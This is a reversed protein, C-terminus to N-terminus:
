VVSRMRLVEGEKILQILEFCGAFKILACEFGGHVIIVFIGEDKWPMPFKTMNAITCHLSHDLVGHCMPRREFKHKNKSAM